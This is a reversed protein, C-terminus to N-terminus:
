REKHNKRKLGCPLRTTTTTPLILNRRPMPTLTETRAPYKLEKGDTSGQIADPWIRKAENMWSINPRLIQAFFLKLFDLLSHKLGSGSILHLLCGVVSTYLPISSLSPLHVSPLAPPPPPALIGPCHSYIERIFIICNQLYTYAM